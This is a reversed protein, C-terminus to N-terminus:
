ALVENLFDRLAPVEEFLIVAEGRMGDDIVVEKEPATEDWYFKSGFGTKTEKM